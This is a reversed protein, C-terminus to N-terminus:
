DTRVRPYKDFLEKVTDFLIKGANVKFEETKIKAIDDDNTLFALEVLAAPCARVVYFKKGKVTFVQANEPVKTEDAVFEKGQLTTVDLTKHKDTWLSPTPQSLGLGSTLNNLLSTALVESCFGNADEFNNTEKSYCVLTGKDRKSLSTNFHLSIFMDAHVEASLMRRAYLSLYVDSTRTYYVKIDSDAFLDKTYKYAVEYTLNREIYEDRVAGGDLGGHGPDIVVIKKYVEWPAKFSLYLLNGEVKPVCVRIVSTDFTFVTKGDSNEVKMSVLEDNHAFFKNKKYDDAHEGPLTVILQRTYTEEGHLSKKIIKFNETVKVDDANAGGFLSLLMAEGSNDRLIHLDTVPKVAITNAAKDWVYGIRLTDCTLRSPVYLRTIGMDDRLVVPAELMDKTEGNVKAQKEGITYTVKDTGNEYTITKDKISFVCETFLETQFLETAPALATGTDGYLVLGGELSSERDNILCKLFDKTYIIDKGETLDKLTTDAKVRATFPFFFLLSFLILLPILKKSRNNMIDTRIRVGGISNFSIRDTKWARQLLFIVFPCKRACLAIIQTKTFLSAKVNFSLRLHAERQYCHKNQM